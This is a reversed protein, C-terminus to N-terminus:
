RAEDIFCAREHERDAEEKLRNEEAQHRAAEMEAMLKLRQEEACLLDAERQRLTERVAEASELEVAMRAEVTQVREALSGLQDRAIDREETVAALVGQQHALRVDIGVGLAGVQSSLGFLM